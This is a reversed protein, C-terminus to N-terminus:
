TGLEDFASLGQSDDGICTPCYASITPATSDDTFVVNCAPDNGLRGLFFLHNIVILECNHVHYENKCMLMYLSNCDSFTKYDSNLVYNM